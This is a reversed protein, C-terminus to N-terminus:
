ASKGKMTYRYHECPNGPSFYPAVSFIEAEVVVGGLSFKLICGEGLRSDSYAKYLAQGKMGADTLVYQTAEQPSMPQVTANVTKKEIRDAEGTGTDDNYGGIVRQIAQVPRSFPISM